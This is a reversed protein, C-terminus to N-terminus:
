GPLYVLQNHQLTLICHYTSADQLTCLLTFVIYLVIQPQGGTPTYQLHTISYPRSLYQWRTLPVTFFTFLVLHQYGKNHQLALICQYTRADQVLYLNRQCVCLKQSVQFLVSDMEQSRLFKRFILNLSFGEGTFM